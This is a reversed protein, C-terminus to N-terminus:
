STLPSSWGLIPEAQTEFDSPRLLRLQLVSEQTLKEFLEECDGSVCNVEVIIDNECVQVSPHSLNWQHVLGRNIQNVKLGGSIRDGLAICVLLGVEIGLLMKRKTKEVRILYGGEFPPEEATRAAISGEQLRKTLIESLRKTQIMEEFTVDIEQMTELLRGSPSMGEYTLSDTCPLCQMEIVDSAHTSAELLRRVSGESASSRKTETMGEYAFSDTCPLCQIENADIRTVEASLWEPCCDFWATM